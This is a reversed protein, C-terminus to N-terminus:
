KVEGSIESQIKEYGCDCQAGVILACEPHHSSFRTLEDRQATLKGITAKAEQLHYYTEELEAIVSSHDDKLKIFSELADVLCDPALPGCGNVLDRIQNKTMPKHESM